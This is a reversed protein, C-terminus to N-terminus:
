EKEDVLPRGKFRCVREGNAWCDVERVRFPIGIYIELIGAIFGEDYSCVLENTPALGSCDLDEYVTITFEGREFDASEMRLIGVKLDALSNQLETVFDEPKAELPLVNKAYEKGALLGAERFIENAVEAGYREFLVNNMSYELLRYVIVPMEEGMNRRGDKINGLKEWTFHYHSDKNPKFINNM